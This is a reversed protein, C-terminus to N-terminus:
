RIRERNRDRALTKAFVDPRSGKLPKADRVLGDWWPDGEALRLIDSVGLAVVSPTAPLRGAQESLTHRLADAVPEVEADGTVIAIDTDSAPGDEGRAVSGYVWAALIGKDGQVAAKLTDMFGAYTAEEAAFLVQIAAMVPHRGIRYLKTRGTGIVAAAGCDVLAELANRVGQGTLSTRDSLMSVSLEGGHRSLERLVRVHGENALMMSLPYRTFSQTTTRNAM